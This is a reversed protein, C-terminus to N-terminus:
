KIIKIKASSSVKMANAEETDLHCELASEDNARITVNSYIGGRLGNIQISVQQGDTVGFQKADQITMHIHRQAIILGEKTQISGKPGIITVGTTGDLDGSLRAQAIVGLKYCDGELIEVQTKKRVPGLVRVKDITGNPGGIIVTEKCAYQGPQSLDKIKTLQYGEGFLQYLDRESLHIHRNSIGVPVEDKNQQEPTTSQTEQLADLLLKIVAEYQGM